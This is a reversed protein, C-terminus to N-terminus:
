TQLKICGALVQYGIWINVPQPQYPHHTPSSLNRFCSVSNLPTEVRNQSCDRSCTSCVPPPVTNAAFLSHPPISIEVNNELDLRSIIRNSIM